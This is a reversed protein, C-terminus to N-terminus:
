DSHVLSMADRLPAIIEARREQTDDLHALQEGVNRNQREGGSGRRNHDLIDLTTQGEPLGIHERHAERPSVQGIDHSGGLFLHGFENM